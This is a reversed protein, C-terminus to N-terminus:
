LNLELVRVVLLLSKRGDALEMPAQHDPQEMQEPQDLKERLDQFQLILVQQDLKVRLDPKETRAM